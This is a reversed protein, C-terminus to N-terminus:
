IYYVTTLLSVLEYAEIVLEHVAKSLEHTEAKPLVGGVERRGGREEPRV